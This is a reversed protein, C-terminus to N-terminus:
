NVVKKMQSFIINREVASQQFEARTAVLRKWLKSQYEICACKCCGFEVTGVEDENLRSCFDVPLIVLCTAAASAAVAIQLM